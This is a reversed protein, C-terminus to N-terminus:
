ILMDYDQLERVLKLNRLYVENDDWPTGLIITGCVVQGNDNFLRIAEKVIRPWEEASYPKPKGPMMIKILRPGTSEIGM